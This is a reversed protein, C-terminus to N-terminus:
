RQRTVRAIAEAAKAIKTIDATQVHIASKTSDLGHQIAGLRTNLQALQEAVAMTALAGAYTAAIGLDVDHGAPGLSAQIRNIAKSALQTFTQTEAM